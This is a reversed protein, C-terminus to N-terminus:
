ARNAEREWWPIEPTSPAEIPQAEVPSPYVPEPERVPIPEQAVPKPKPDPFMASVKDRFDKLTSRAKGLDEELQMAHLANDDRDQRAISLEDFVRVREAEARQYSQSTTELSLKLGEIEQRAQALSDEARNRQERMEHLTTDLESAHMHARDLDGELSNVRARLAEIEAPMTSARVIADAAQSFLSSLKMAEETPSVQIATNGDTM